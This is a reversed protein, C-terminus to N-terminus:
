SVPMDALYLVNFGVHKKENRLKSRKARSFTSRLLSTVANCISHSNAFCYIFLQTDSKFFITLSGEIESFSQM